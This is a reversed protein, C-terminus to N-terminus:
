FIQTKNIYPELINLREKAREDLRLVLKTCILELLFIPSVNSNFFSLSAVDVILLEDAYQSFPATARDTILILKASREKCINIIDLANKRYRNFSIMVICDDAEIDMVKEINNIDEGIVLIVNGVILSLLFGFKDALSATGRYGSIYRHNSAALIEVVRDIKEPTNKSLISMINSSALEFHRTILNKESYENDDVRVIRQQLPLRFEDSIDAQYSVHEQIEKQLDNFVKYGLAKAMRNVSTNSTNLEKALDSASMFCVKSANYLVYEAIDSEKKTLKAKIIREKLDKLDIM